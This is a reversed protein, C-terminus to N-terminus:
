RFVLIPCREALVYGSRPKAEVRSFHRAGMDLLRERRPFFLSHTAGDYADITFIDELPWGTLRSLAERDPFLQGFADRIEAVAVGGDPRRHALAMALRWKLAHFNGRWGGTVDDRINDLSEAVDPACFSRFAAVGGAALVRRMEAFLADYAGVLANLPGDGIIADISGDACPLDLWDGVVARRRDTDGPWVARILHASADVATLDRGLGALGPTVGLLLVRGDHGEIAEAMAGADEPGPLLPPGLRRYVEAFGQWGFGAQEGTGSM